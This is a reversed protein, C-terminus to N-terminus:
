AASAFDINPGVAIREVDVFCSVLFVGVVRIMIGEGFADSVIHRM